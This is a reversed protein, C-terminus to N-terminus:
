LFNNNLNVQTLLLPSNPSLTAKYDFIPGLLNLLQARNRAIPEYNACM